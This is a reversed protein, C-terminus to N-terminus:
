LGATHGAPFQPSAPANPRKTFGAARVDNVICFCNGDVAVAERILKRAQRRQTEVYLITLDGDGGHGRVEALRYGAARLVKALEVGKRTVLSVLQRGFALRQEITIGLFTGSAFGLGYALAYVPHNMNLLVKAVACIYVVAEFSGLVAAFVRRGQIIAVTRITDLTVDTIRALVILWFTVLVTM